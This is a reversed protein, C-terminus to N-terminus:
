RSSYAVCKVAPEMTYLQLVHDIFQRRYEPINLQINQSRFVFVM